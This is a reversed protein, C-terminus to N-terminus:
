AAISAILQPPCEFAGVCGVDGAAGPGAGTVTASTRTPVAPLAEGLREGPCVSCSNAWAVLESPVLASTVFRATQCDDFGTTAVTDGVPRTV